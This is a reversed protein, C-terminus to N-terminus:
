RAADKQHDDPGPHEEGDAPALEQGRGFGAGRGFGQGGGRGFGQGRGPGFGQGLGRGAGPGAHEANAETEGPRDQATHEQGRGQESDGGNPWTHEGGRGLGLGQGGRGPGLGRGGGQGRGWGPVHGSEPFHKQIAAFVDSPAVGKSEALEAMSLSADRVDFGEQSLAESADEVSLAIEAAFQALTLEESHPVPAQAAKRDWYNKIQDNWGQVTSFPPLGFLTGAVFVAAIVTALSLERKLNLGAGAKKKIYGWFMTWNLVLHLGAAALFLIALNTHLAAWEEKGLGTVTWDTWHATRGRPTLYLIVGSVGLVLFSCTLLLSTFGKTSFKRRAPKTEM